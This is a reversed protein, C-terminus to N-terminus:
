PNAEKVLLTPNSTQAHWTLAAAPIRMAGDRFTGAAADLHCAACDAKGHVGPRSWVGPDLGGHKGRWYATRTIRLPVERAPTTHAVYWAPETEGREAGHRTLFVEVTHLTTSDLALDEGFHDHQGALMRRWSRAPLLGPQYALHCSGCETRWTTDDALRPGTYPLYPKGPPASVLPRFYLAAAAALLTVMAIGIGARARVDREGTARKHGTVMAAVLNERHALSGALVGTVHLAATVALAWALGAHVDRLLAGAGFGLTGALPGEQEQGGLTLLGTAALGAALALMLFVAWSGAPNHGGFDPARRRALAHLYSLAQAPSYLFRAFRAHGGGVIGWALRFALLAGFVYGAFVHLYLYRDGTSLWAAGFALAFLWHFVRVPVDWIRTRARAESKNAGTSPILM